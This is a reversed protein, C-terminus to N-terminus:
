AVPDSACSAACRARLGCTGPEFGPRGVVYGLTGPELGPRGVLVGRAGGPAEEKMGVKSMGAEECAM